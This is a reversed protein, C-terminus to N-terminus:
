FGHCGVDGLLIYRKSAESYDPKLDHSPVIASGWQTGIQHPIRALVRYQGFDNSVSTDGVPNSGTNGAQFAPTRSRVLRHPCCIHSHQRVEAVTDFDSELM